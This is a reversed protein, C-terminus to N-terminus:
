ISCACCGCAQLQGEASGTSNQTWSSLHMQLALCNSAPLLDDFHGFLLTWWHSWFEWSFSFSIAQCFYQSQFIAQKWGIPILVSCHQLLILPPQVHLQTCTFVCPLLKASHGLCIARVGPLLKSCDTWTPLSCQMGGFQNRRHQRRKQKKKRGRQFSM